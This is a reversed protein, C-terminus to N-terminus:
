QPRTGPDREAAVGTSQKPQSLEPAQGGKDRAFRRATEELAERVADLIQRPTLDTM